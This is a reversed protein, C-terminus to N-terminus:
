ADGDSGVRELCWSCAKGEGREVLRDGKWADALLLKAANLRDVGWKAGSLKVLARLASENVGQNKRVISALLDADEAVEAKVSAVKKAKVDVANPAGSETLVMHRRDIKLHVSDGSPGHKNKTIKADILDTEGRVSRLMLLVRASFEIAGSEKGAAMDNTTEAAEISRYASRNAESTAMAIMRHITAGNRLAAVNASVAERLSDASGTGDCRLAQISDGFYAARTGLDKAYAGLDAMASEITHDGGYFRIPLAELKAAIADLTEHDREECDRRLWGARQALRTVIDGPEEDVAHLGVAIGRRAYTDSIQVALATKATDPPGIIYWRSGYVPGGGTLEDLKAIGTPEHVLPGESRWSSIVDSPTWARCARAPPPSQMAGSCPEADFRGPPIEPVNDNSAGNVYASNM